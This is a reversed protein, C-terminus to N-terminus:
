AIEGIADHLPSILHEHGHDLAHAHLRLSANAAAAQVTETWIDLWSLQLIDEVSRGTAQAVRRILGDLEQPDAIPFGSPLRYSGDPRLGFAGDMLTGLDVAPRDDLLMVRKLQEFRVRAVAEIRAIEERTVPNFALSEAFETVRDFPLGLFYESRMSSTCCHRGYAILANENEVDNLHLASLWCRVIRHGHLQADAHHKGLRSRPDNSRGVKVVGTSFEIVYVHAGLARRDIRKPLARVWPEFEGGDFTQIENM